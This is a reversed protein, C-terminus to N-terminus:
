RPTRRSPLRRASIGIPHDSSDPLLSGAARVLAPAGRM